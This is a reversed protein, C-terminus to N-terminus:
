STGVGPSRASLRESSRRQQPTARRDLCQSAWTVELSGKLGSIRGSDKVEKMM